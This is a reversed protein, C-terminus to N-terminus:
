KRRRRRAAVRLALGGAGLLSWTAPEPVVTFNDITPEPNGIASAIQLTVATIPSSLSDFGVFTYGANLSPSITGISSAGSFVTILYPEPVTQSPSILDLGFSFTNAPLDIRLSDTAFQGNITYLALNNPGLFSFNSQGLFEINGQPSSFSVDGVPTSATYSPYQPPAPTASNFDIVYNGAHAVDYVARSTYIIQANAATAAAAFISM